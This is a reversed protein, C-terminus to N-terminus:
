CKTYTKKIIIPEIFNQM